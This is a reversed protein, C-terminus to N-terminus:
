PNYHNTFSRDLDEYLPGLIALNVLSLFLFFALVLRNVWSILFPLINISTNKQNLCPFVNIFLPKLDRM